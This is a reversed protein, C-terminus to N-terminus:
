DRDHPKRGNLFGDWFGAWYALVARASNEWLQWM